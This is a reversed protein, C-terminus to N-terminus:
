ADTVEVSFAVCPDLSHVLRKVHRQAADHDAATAGALALALAGRPHFNWETPAIIRYAHVRGQHLSVIHMLLGRATEVWAIGSAGPLSLAGLAPSARGALLLALERLRAVFRAQVRTAATACLASLLPDSQLRALAGTEAPAGRWTPHRAFEPDAAGAQALEGVWAAHDHDGLLPVLRPAHDPRYVVAAEDDRVRRIFRAAATQGDDAWRDLDALSTMALWDEAALGFVAMAIADNAPPSPDATRTTQVTPATAPTAGAQASAVPAVPRPALSERAAAIAGDAPKEGIWRPWDLLTRCAGERMLEASVALRCSESACATLTERAAAACAMESAAAQSHGCISFLLPVAALVEARTRGQLMTRAVDPRTSRIDIGQVTGDHLRVGIRLEGEPGV